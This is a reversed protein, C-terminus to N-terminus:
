EQTTTESSCGFPTPSGQTQVPTSSSLQENGLMKCIKLAPHASERAEAPSILTTSYKVHHQSSIAATHKSPQQTQVASPLQTNQLVACAVPLRPHRPAGAPMAPQLTTATICWSPAGGDLSTDHHIYTPTHEWTQFVCCLRGRSRIEGEAGQM